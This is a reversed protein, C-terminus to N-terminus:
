QPKVLRDGGAAIEFEDRRNKAWASENSANDVPREEGYSITEVRSPDVGKAELYRKASTARKNGLVINYEDSGRDDAHGAIRLRLGPNALMIAAKQDLTAQADARIADQDLDFYIPAQLLATVEATVAAPNGGTGTTPTTTGGGPTTTGGGPTTTQGGDPVPATEAPKKGCAAVVVACVLAVNRLSFAM